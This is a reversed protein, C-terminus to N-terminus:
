KVIGTYVPHNPDLPLGDVDCGKDYGHKEKFKKRSEHCNSCLSQLKGLWFKNPDNHHPTIHDAIRAPVPGRNERLCLACLPEVRLQHKAMRRWRSTGHLGM